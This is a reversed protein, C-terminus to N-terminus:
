LSQLRHVVRPVEVVQRGLAALAAHDAATLRTGRGRALALRCWCDAALLDSDDGTADAHHAVALVSVLDRVEASWGGVLLQRDALARGQRRIGRDIRVAAADLLRRAAAAHDRLPRDLIRSDDRHPRRALLGIRWALWAAARRGGSTERTLSALPHHKALGKFLALGLLESEGEYVTVAFHDHFSDGLPHGVLFARGGHVGLSNIAGDRVCEGAVVKATIAELEGSQGADIAAAAWAALSDCAVIGAAIRALRGQVLERSAIPEGWTRRRLAHDRAQRELLRLTGAAQAALTIRGRNLGHWVIRMADSSGQPPQLIDSAHVEHRTFEIAANHAHKLPHLRYHRLRFTPTDSDPLRVLLVAPRGDLHALLKVLRGYTAGTIFMKTGSLLLRDGQRDLRSSIAHLDCGADPETAGFISLPTGQALGPLHREQQSESGFAALASVAGIASHISLLGAATPVDTAIRTVVRALEQMSCGTGGFREPVLLGWLGAEGLAAEAAQSFTGAPAAPADGLPAPSWAAAAEPNAADYLRSQGRLEVIARGAREVVDAVAARLPEAALAAALSFGSPTMADAQSVGWLSAAAWSSRTTMNRGGTMLNASMLHANMPSTDAHQPGCPPGPSVVAIWSPPMPEAAAALEATFHTAIAKRRLKLSETTEGHAADFPRGILVARRVRFGRPLHTQRRALRRALWQLVRPHRLAARRSWVRLGMRRIAARLVSPEPVVLAIPASLGDGAVCVQAVVPDEAIAAEVEAPPVKTGGSLVLTDVLRGTIRVHGDPDIAALDGTELWEPQVHQEDTDADIVGVARCPTRVLLQGRTAPRTDLALEVGDVAPGVTGPRAIRPNSLTVVPGAEALGYGQVLPLGRSSFAVATRARLAAGGSVCVRVRGGLAASLDPIRGSEAAIELREFFAPVGLVVTPPLVRCADLVQRRDTVVNLCGGRVLATVLDGTRALSHSMPLWSLRVDDPEDLFVKTSAVANAVVARQSHMVGKPRGTTGSSLLITSVADPDCSQVYRAVEDRLAARDTHRRQWGGSELVGVGAVGNSVRRHNSRSRRDISIPIGAVPSGGRICGTWAIGQPQLWALQAAHEGTTADAHLPVHVVGALQCALDVVIWDPSHSGLHALRHGRRVGMTEFTTALEVAAAILEGWTWTRGQDLADCVAPRDYSSELRALMLEVM